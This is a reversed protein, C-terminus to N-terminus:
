SGARRPPARRGRPLPNGQPTYAPPSYFNLTRLLGRGTNRIEHHEGREIVLLSGERLKRRAGDVIALGTGAVVFVWQDAGRHANDPGGESDGPAIVMEAAQVKGVVFVPRFGKGFRLHRSQM